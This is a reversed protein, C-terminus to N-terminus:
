KAEALLAFRKQSALKHAIRLPESIRRISLHRVIEAATELNVMHGVSVYVPKTGERTTIAEGIVEGRELLMTRGNAESPKGTLRSKAVGITPKNLALGLHSAFGCRYPHAWGQADVLFVDPQVRLRAIAALAPPVERFSLLTPVYPMRVHCVSVGYDVLEHSDYDVVVAAGVGLNEAYHVDM